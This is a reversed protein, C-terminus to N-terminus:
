CRLSCMIGNGHKHSKAWLRYLWIFWQPKNVRKLWAAIAWVSTKYGWLVFYRYCFTAKESISAESVSIVSVNAKAVPSTSPTPPPECGKKLCKLGYSLSKERAWQNLVIISSLISWSIVYCTICLLAFTSFKPFKRGKKMFCFGALQIWCFGAINVFCPPNIKRCVQRSWTSFSRDYM